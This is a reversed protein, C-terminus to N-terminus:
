KKKLQNIKQSISIELQKENLNNFNFNQAIQQNILVSFKELYHPKKYIGDNFFHAIIESSAIALEDHSSYISALAGISGHLQRNGIMPINLHFSDPLLLEINRRKFQQPNDLLVLFGLQPTMKNFYAVPSDQNELIQYNIVYQEDKIQKKYDKLHYRSLRGLLLYINRYKPQIAKALALQNSLPQERYIGSLQIGLNNYIKRMRDLTIRPTQLAFIPIDSRSALIKLLATKGITIAFDNNLALYDDIEFPLKTALNYINIHLNPHNNSLNQKLKISLGEFSEIENSYSEDALYYIGVKKTTKPLKHISNANVQHIFLYAFLLSSLIFYQFKSLTRQM